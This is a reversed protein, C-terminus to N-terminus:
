KNVLKLFDNADLIAYVGQVEGKWWKEHFVVNVAGKRPMNHLLIPYKVDKSSAKCQIDLKPCDEKVPQLDVGKNDMDKNVLITRALKKYGFVKLLKMIKLEFKRGRLQPTEKSEDM